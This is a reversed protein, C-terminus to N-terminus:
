VIEADNMGSRGARLGTTTNGRLCIARRSEQWRERSQSNRLTSISKKGRNERSERRCVTRRDQKARSRPRHQIRPNVRFAPEIYRFKGKLQTFVKNFRERHRPDAPPVPFGNKALESDSATLPDFNQSPSFTFVKVGNELQQTKM